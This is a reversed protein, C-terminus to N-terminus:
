SIFNLEIVLVSVLDGEISVVVDVTLDHFPINLLIVSKIMGQMENTLFLSDGIIVEENISWEKTRDSIGYHQYTFNFFLFSHM